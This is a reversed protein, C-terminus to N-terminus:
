LSADLAQQMEEPQARVPEGDWSKETRVLVGNEGPIMTRAHIAMIGQAPGSWVIRRPPDVERITSEISMGYTQWRFVTRAVLPGEM